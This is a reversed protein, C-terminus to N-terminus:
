SQRIAYIMTSKNPEFKPPNKMLEKCNVEATLVIEKRTLWEWFTPRKRYVTVTQIEQQCKVFHAELQVTLTDKLFDDNNRGVNVRLSEIYDQSVKMYSTMKEKTLNLDIHKM